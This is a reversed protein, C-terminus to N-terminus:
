QYVAPSSRQQMTVLNATLTGHSAITSSSYKSSVFARQGDVGKMREEHLTHQIPPTNEKQARCLYKQFLVVGTPLKLVMEDVEAILYEQARKPFDDM